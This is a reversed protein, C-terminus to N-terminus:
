KLCDIITHLKSHFLVKKHAGKGKRLEMEFLIVNRDGGKIVLKGGPTFYVSKISKSIKDSFEDMPTEKWTNNRNDLTVLLDVLNVGCFYNILKISNTKFTNVLEEANPNNRYKSRNVEWETKSDPLFNVWKSIVRIEEETFFNDTVIRYLSYLAWQTKKGGKVSEKKGDKRIVDTKGTGSIVISGEGLVQTRQKERDHGSKKKISAEKSTMGHISIKM